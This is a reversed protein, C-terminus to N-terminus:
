LQVRVVTAIATLEWRVGEAPQGAGYQAALLVGAMGTLGGSMAYVLLKVREVRLGMLRATEENDGIALM